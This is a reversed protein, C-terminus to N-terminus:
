AKRSLIIDGTDFAGSGQDGGAFQIRDTRGDPYQNGAYFFARGLTIEGTDADQVLTKDGATGDGNAVANLYFKFTSPGLKNPNLTLVTPSGILMGNALSFTGDWNIYDTSNANAGIWFTSGIVESGRITGSIDANSATLNGAKTVSFKETDAIQFIVNNDSFSDPNYLFTNPTVLYDANRIGVSDIYWGSEPTGIYGSVATVTGRITLDGTPTLKFNGESTANNMHRLGYSNSLQIHSGASNGSFITGTSSDLTINNATLTSGSITWNAISGATATVSGTLSLTGNIGLTFSGSSHSIGISPDIEIRSSGAAGFRAKGDSDLKFSGTSNQLGDAALTLGGVTGAIARVVGSSSVSFPYLGASPTGINLANKLTGTAASIDGSFSGSGVIKLAGTGGILSDFELLKTTGDSGYIVFPELGGSIVVRQGASAGAQIYSDASLIGAEIESFATREVQIPNNSASIYNGTIDGDRNLTGVKIYYDTDFDLEELTIKDIVSGVGISVQNSGNAFNLTHVWNNESPTFSSTKGIYVKAGYFSGATFDANSSNKGDWSVIVSAKGASLIPASPDEPPSVVDEAGTVTVTRSLSYFSDSGSVTVAKLQVIYDGPAAVITKTGSTKFFDVVQTGIGFTGGSIHINVRDINQIPQGSDNNGSWTIKIFGQGGTVDNIGLDPTDPTLEAPTTISKVASWPGFTNDNYKWRFQLPYLTLPELDTITVIFYGPDSSQTSTDKLLDQYTM